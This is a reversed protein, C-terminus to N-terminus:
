VLSNVNSNLNVEKGLTISEKDEGSGNQNSNQGNQQNFQNNGNNNNSDGKFFTTDGHYIDITFNQIKIDNNNLKNSIDSANANILNYAEKNNATITAKMIGENMTLKIVVEGLEKPMVKVTLEKLNNENMFKVAKIIDENLTQKNIVMDTTINGTKGLVSNNTNNTIHMMFNTAKSIKNDKSEKGDKLLNSLFQEEKKDDSAVANGNKEAVQIPNTDASNQNVAVQDVKEKSDTNILKENLAQVIENRVSNENIVEMLKNKISNDNKIDSISNKLLAMLEDAKMAGNSLKTELNNAKIGQKIQTLLQICFDKVNQSEKGNGQISSQLKEPSINLMQCILSLLQNANVKGNEVLDKIDKDGDVVSKVIEELKKSDVDKDETNKNDIEENKTDKSNVEKDNTQENKAEEINTDKNDADKSKLNNLVKEFNTDKSNGQKSVSSTTNTTDVSKAINCAQVNM